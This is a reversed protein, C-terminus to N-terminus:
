IFFFVQSEFSSLLSRSVCMNSVRLLCLFQSYSSCKFKYKGESSGDIKRPVCYQANAEEAQINSLSLLAITLIFLKM